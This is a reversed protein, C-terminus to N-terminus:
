SPRVGLRKVKDEYYRSYVKKIEDKLFSRDILSHVLEHTEVFEVIAPMDEGCIGDM